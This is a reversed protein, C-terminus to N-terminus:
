RGWYDQGVLISRSRTDETAVWAARCGDLYFDLLEHKVERSFCATLCALDCIVLGCLYQKTEEHESCLRRCEAYDADSELHGCVLECQADLVRPYVLGELRDCRVLCVFYVLFVLMKTM